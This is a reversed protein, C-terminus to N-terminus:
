QSDRKSLDLCSPIERVFGACWREKEEIVAFYSSGPWDPVLLVGRAKERQAKRVVKWALGIPPHFYGNGREWSVSFADVGM